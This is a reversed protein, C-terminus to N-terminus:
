EPLCGPHRRGSLRGPRECPGDRFWLLERDRVAVDGAERLLGRVKESPISDSEERDVQRDLVARGTPHATM